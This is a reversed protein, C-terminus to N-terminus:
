DDKTTYQYCRVLGDKYAQQYIEQAIPLPDFNTGEVLAAGDYGMPHKRVEGFDDYAPHKKDWVAQATINAIAQAKSDKHGGYSALAQLAAKTIMHSRVEYLNCIVGESILQAHFGKMKKWYEVQKPHMPLEETTVRPM